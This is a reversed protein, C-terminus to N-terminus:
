HKAKSVGKKPLMYQIMIEHTGNSYKAMENLSFDFAYGIKVVDDYTYQLFVSAFGLSKYGVGLGIMKNYVGM